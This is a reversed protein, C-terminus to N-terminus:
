QIEQSELQNKLNDLSVEMLPGLKKSAFIAAFKKHPEYWKINETMNWYVISSDNTSTIYFTSLFTRRNKQHIAVAISDTKTNLLSLSIDKNKLLENWQHWSDITQITNFVDEKKAKITKVRQTNVKGPFLLSLLFLFTVFVIINIAIFKIYRM